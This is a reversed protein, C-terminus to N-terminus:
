QHIKTIWSKLARLAFLLVGSLRKFVVKILSVLLKKKTAKLYDKVGILNVTSTSSVSIKLRLLLTESERVVDLAARTQKIGKRIM